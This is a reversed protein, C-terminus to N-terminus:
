AQGGANTATAAPTAARATAPRSFIAYEPCVTTCLRCNICGTGKAVPYHYGKPNFDKSRSLVGTPCFEICLECGKCHTKRIFVVGRIAPPPPVIPSRRATPPATRTAM